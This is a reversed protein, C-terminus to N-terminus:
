ETPNEKSLKGHWGGLIRGIEDLSESIVIYKKNSISKTEWLVMLLIKLTDLKRISMRVYPTKESKNLFIATSVLEIIEMFLKDIKNGLTYRNVQPLIVHCGHWVIYASKIKELVSPLIRRPPDEFSSNM